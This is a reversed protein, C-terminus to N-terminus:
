TQTSLRQNTHQFAGFFPMCARVSLDSMDFIFVWAYLSQDSGNVLRFGYPQKNGDFKHQVMGDQNLDDEGEEGDEARILKPVLVWSREKRLFVPRLELAELVVMPALPAEKNSRRLHFFFDAAHELVSYIRDSKVAIPFLLRTVGAGVCIKDTIEFVAKGNELLVRIEHPKDSEVFQIKRKDQRNEEMKRVAHVFLELFDPQLPVFVAVDEGKGVRTQLAWAPQPISGAEKSLAMSMTTKSASSDGSTLRCVVEASVDKSAYVDFTAGETIGQVEGADLTIVSNGGEMATMVEFLARKPAAAKGDFLIRSKHAGV